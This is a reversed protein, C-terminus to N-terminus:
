EDSVPGAHLAYANVLNDVVTELALDDDIEDATPERHRLVAFFLITEAILRAALQTDPVPRLQGNAIRLELYDALQRLHWGRVEKFWITALEPWDSASRRLLMIGRRYTSELSYLDRVIGEFEARVDEVHSKELTAELVPSHAKELACDRLFDLTAGNEPTPVPFTLDEHSFDPIAARVVLDFLAEKSEVYRYIAGASLGMADTVDAMQTRRYGKAVFLNSAVDVLDDIRERVPLRAM